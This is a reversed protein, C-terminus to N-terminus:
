RRLVHRTFQQQCAQQASRVPGARDLCRVFEQGATGSLVVVWVAVVALSLVLGLIGTLVGASAKGTHGAGTQRLRRRARGGLVVAVPGLLVGLGLISAPISLVGFVLSATGEPHQAQPLPDGYLPLVPAAAPATGAAPPAFPDTM